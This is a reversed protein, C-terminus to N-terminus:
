PTFTYANAACLDVGKKTVDDGNSMLVELDFVCVGKPDSVKLTVTRGPDAVQKGLLDNSLDLTGAPAVYVASVAGKAANTLKVVHVGTHAQPAAGAAPGASQAHASAFASGALVLAVAARAINRINM